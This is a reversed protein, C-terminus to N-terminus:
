DHLISSDLMKDLSQLHPRRENWLTNPRATGDFGFTALQGVTIPLVPYAAIELLTLAPLLLPMPLHLTKAETARMLRHIKKLLEEISIVDPGGLEFTEGGFLDNDVIHLLFDAVDGVAIPQVLMRGNGFVPIVPLAALRALGALVPSNKGFITTPRAIAFRLGSSRVIEEAQAKSQAYYYRTQDPFGAAISSVFLFSKVGALKCQEVLRRTGEVNVAFYEKPPCKGTAAALHLVCDAGSLAAPYVATDALGGCLWQVNAPLSPSSASRSLCIVQEFKALGPHLLLARGLFGSAGTIFLRRPTYPIAPM